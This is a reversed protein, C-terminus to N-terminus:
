RLPEDQPTQWGSAPLGHGRSVFDNSRMHVGLANSRAQVRDRAGNAHPRAGDASGCTDRDDFNIFHGLSPIEVLGMFSEVGHFV